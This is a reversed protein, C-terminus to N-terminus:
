QERGAILIKSPLSGEIRYETIKGDEVTFSVKRNGKAKLGEVKINKWESPLAPILHVTDLESQLLMESIAATIGFNGDIQFPPHACLMNSYSGGGNLMNYGKDRKLRLQKKIFSYAADGDWLAAYLCTKWALGWGTGEPGRVELSRRCAAYLEPSSMPDFEHGPYFAYLHSVHRHNVESEECERYWEMIRGDSSIRIPLLLPLEEKVKETIDDSLKCIECIRLYNKFLERVVAMTMEATESVSIVADGVKYANEPSTSPLVIRYGDVTALQSLYFRAAERIIPYATTKLFRKDLTYEYYEMLHHCMWGGAANWFMYRPDGIVPSTHRWLDTNHHACWGDAGYLARATARGSVSLDSIMQLLPQYMEALDIGLTPFYNMETNINITYNSQWPANYHENWIGQLNTPQSGQRSAAVTLYRGFNFLLAPLAKDSGGEEFRCMRESTPLSAKKDSGLDLKVRNFYESYDKVHAAFLEEFTKKSLNEQMSNCIARFDRGHTYPHKDYGNFSTASSIRIECFSANSVSMANLSDSKRGDTLIDVTALFRIGRQKPDDFYQTKRECRHINQESSVPCEGEMYLLGNLTYTKSYLQSSLGVKLSIKRIPEGDSGRAEIRYVIARDPHSAFAIVTYEADGRTYKVTAVARALDLTRKYGTVRGQTNTFSLTLDGLPLYAQSAYCSFNSRLEENAAVCDGNLAHEKARRLSEACNKGFLDKRAYGSWLTDENLSIRDNETNGYIMAGQFGNGIPYAEEFCEAPRKEM